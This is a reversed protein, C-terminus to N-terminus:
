NLNLYSKIESPSQPREAPDKEMLHIILVRINPPVDRSIPPLTEKKHMEGVRYINTDKFPPGGCFLAYILVGLSYYDSRYDIDSAGDFQEPSMYEPKGYAAGYSKGKLWEVEHKAVGFDILCIETDTNKDKILVNDPAIDRHLTDLSHTAALADILQIIIEIKQDHSLNGKEILSKLSTGEILEMAIYPRKSRDDDEYGYDYVKIIPADPFRKNINTLVMGEGIFKSKLDDDDLYNTMVKLAILNENEDTARYIESIGGSAIHDLLTYHNLKNVSDQSQVKTEPQDTQKKLFAKRSIIFGVLIGVLVISLGIIEKGWILWLPLPALYMDIEKTNAVIQSSITFQRPRHNDASLTAQLVDTSDTFISAPILFRSQMENQPQIKNGDIYLSAGNTTNIELSSGFSNVPITFILAGVLLVQKLMYGTHSSSQAIVDYCHM